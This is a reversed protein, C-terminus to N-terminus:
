DSEATTRREREAQLRNELETIALRRSEARREAEVLRSPESREASASPSASSESPSPSSESPESPSPASPESGEAPAPAASPTNHRRTPSPLSVVTGDPLTLAFTADLGVTELPASFAARILGPPGPLAPLQEHRHEGGGDTTVLTLTGSGVSAAARAAVRLLVTGPAAEVQEFELLTFQPDAETM